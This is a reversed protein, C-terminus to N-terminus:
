VIESYVMIFWSLDSYSSVDLFWIRGTSIMVKPPQIVIRATEFDKMRSNVPKGPRGLGWAAWAVAVGPGQLLLQAAFPTASDYFPKSASLEQLIPTYNRSSFVCVHSTNLYGENVWTQSFQSVGIKMLKRYASHALCQRVNRINRPVQDWDIGEFWGWSRSFM